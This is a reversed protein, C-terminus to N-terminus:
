SRLDDVVSLVEIRPSGQVEYVWAISHRLDSALYAQLAEESEWLYVGGWEDAAADHVYHKQILGPLRRFEPMRESYRRRLEEPSLGSRFKVVMVVRVGSTDVM